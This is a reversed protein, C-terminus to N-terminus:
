RHVLHALDPSVLGRDTSTWRRRRYERWFPPSTIRTCAHGGIDVAPLESVGVPGPPMPHVLEQLRGFGEHNGHVMVVPCELGLGGEKAPRFIADLWPAPPDTSWQRLFELECPNTRAHRRTANDLQSDRTFTGVDGCLFVADFVLSEERALRALMCLALQLHGHVDGVVAVRRGAGEEVREV